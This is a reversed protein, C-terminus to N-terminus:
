GQWKEMVYFTITERDISNHQNSIATAVDYMSDYRGLKLIPENLAAFVNPIKRELEVLAKSHAVWEERTM